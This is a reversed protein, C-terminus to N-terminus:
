FYIFYIFIVQSLDNFFGDPNVEPEEVAYPDIFACNVSEKM